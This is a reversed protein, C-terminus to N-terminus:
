RNSAYKGEDPLTSIFFILIILNRLFIFLRVKTLSRNLFNGDDVDKQDNMRSAMDHVSSDRAKINSETDQILRAYKM